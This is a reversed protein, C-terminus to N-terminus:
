CYVSSCIRVKCHVIPMLKNDFILKKENNGEIKFHKNENAYNLYNYITKAVMKKAKTDSSGLSDMFILHPQHRLGENCDNKLFRNLGKMCVLFFHKNKCIVFYIYEKEYVNKPNRSNFEKIFM